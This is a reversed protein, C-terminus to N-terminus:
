GESERMRQGFMWRHGELDEATYIRYGVGPEEPERLITADAAVARAFHAEVDGVEVFLGDIVWPNEHMGREIECSERHKRSGVYGEPTSLFITAGEIELEAHMVTGADDTARAETNETAGFASCLWDIAAAADEYGLFPVLRQAV